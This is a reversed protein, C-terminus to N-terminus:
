LIAIIDNAPVVIFTKKDIEKMYGKADQSLMVSLGKKFLKAPVDPGIDVIILDDFETNKEENAIIIGSDLKRRRSELLVNNFTPKM